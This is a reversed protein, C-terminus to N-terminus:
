ASKANNRRRTLFVVFLALVILIALALVIWVPSFSSAASAAVGAIKITQKDAFKGAKVTLTYISGAKATKPVTVAFKLQSHAGVKISHTVTSALQIVPAGLASGQAGSLSFSGDTGDPQGTNDSTYEVTGGPAATNASLAGTYSEAAFAPASVGVALLTAIAVTALIRTKM